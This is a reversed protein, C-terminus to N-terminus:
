YYSFDKDSILKEFDDRSGVFNRYFELILCKLIEIIYFSYIGRICGDM